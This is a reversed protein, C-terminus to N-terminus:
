LHEIVLENFVNDLKLINLKNKKNVINEHVLEVLYYLYIVITCIYMIITIVTCEFYIIEWAKTKCQNYLYLIHALKFKTCVDNFPM